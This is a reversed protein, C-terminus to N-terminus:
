KDDIWRNSSNNYSKWKVYLKDGKREIVKEVRFMKQNSKQLEKGHFKGFVEEGNFDSIVYAWPM